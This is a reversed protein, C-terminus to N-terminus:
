GRVLIVWGGIRKSEEYGHDLAVSAHVSGAPAIVVQAQELARAAGAADARQFALYAAQDQAEFADLPNSVWVTAGTAALQESVPEPALVVRGSAARAAAAIDDDAARLAPARVALISTVAVAGLAVVTGALLTNRRGDRPTRRDGVMVGTEPSAHRRSTAAAGAALLLLWVGNRSATVTGVILGALAVYEWVPRRGRAAMIVLILGAAITMLDFPNGLNPRGWMGSADSTAEGGLVGLYYSPARWLGPNACAAVLTAIGLCVTVVPDRRLSSFLLYCGTVAVGILVAGHLNGWLALLPVVFWVRRSPHEHDYRLLLLLLAFPVLSLLQVRAVLFATAAGVALVVIVLITRAAPAGRRLADWAILALTASVSIAQGAILGVTGAAGIASFALQGLVTTNVWGSTPAAAFPVGTPVGGAERIHNGLAVPWFADSGTRSLAAVMATLTFM